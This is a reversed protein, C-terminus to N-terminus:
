REESSRLANQGLTIVAAVWVVTGDMRVRLSPGGDLTIGAHGIKKMVEKVKRIQPSGAPLGLSDVALEWFRLLSVAIRFPPSAQPKAALVQKLEPLGNEGIAAFAADDLFAVYLPKEGFLCQRVKNEKEDKSNLVDIELRHIKVGSMTEADLKIKAQSAEPLKKITERFAREVAAGDKLALGAILTVHTDGPRSRIV